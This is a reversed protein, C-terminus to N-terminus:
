ARCGEIGDLEADITLWNPACRCLACRRPRSAKKRRMPPAEAREAENASVTRNRLLNQQRRADARLFELQAELAKADQEATDIQALALKRRAEMEPAVLRALSQEKKCPTARRSLCSWWEDAPALRWM